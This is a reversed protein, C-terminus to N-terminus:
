VKIRNKGKATVCALYVGDPDVDLSLVNTGKEPYIKLTKDVRLDWIFITGNQDSFMLNTQNPHLCASSLPCHAQHLKQSNTTNARLDWIRATGDEGASYLWRGESQFGVSVVNKSVGEYSHDHQSNPSNVEYLRIHQYGGAAILDKNSSLALANVQSDPHQVTRCCVGSHAHWFRITHDYGGTALVVGNGASGTMIIACFVYFYFVATVMDM